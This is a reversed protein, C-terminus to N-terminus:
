EEEDVTYGGAARRKIFFFAGAPAAVGIIVILTWVPLFGVNSLLVNTQKTIPQTLNAIRLSAQETLPKYGPKSVGISVTTTGPLSGAAYIASASGNVNTTNEVAIFQGVASTWNVQAGAVPNGQSTATASINTRQGPLLHLVNVFYSAQMPLLFATINAQAFQFGNSTATINTTGAVLSSQLNIQAFTEGVPITVQPSVSGVTSNGIALQVQVNADTKEPLGAINQLQVVINGYSLGNGQVFNPVAYLALKAAAPKVLTLIGNASTYNSASATILTSGNIQSTTFTARAYTQGAPITVSAQVQGVSSIKSALDVITNEPARAPQGTSNDILGVTIATYSGGSILTPPAFLVKLTNASPGFSLMSLTTSSLGPSQSTIEATGPLFTSSVSIAVESQSAPILGSIDQGQYQTDVQMTANNSSRAYITIPNATISPVLSTTTANYYGLQVVLAGNYTANNPLLTGPVFYEILTNPVNWPLIGQVLSSGKVYGQASATINATGPQGGSTITVTTYSSGAPITITNSSLGAVQTNNDTLVVNVAVPALAPVSGNVGQDQLQISLFGTQGSSAPIMNPGSIILKRAVPGSTSMMASGASYSGAQATITTQGSIYTPQFTASAFSQGAPITVSSPVSGVQSNSSSLTVTLSSGLEVPNNFADVAEVIVNSTLKEDPPIVSPSLFVDLAVPMGGVTKTTVTLSGVEYGSAIASIVTQGPLTTTSFNVVQFLQGASLLVTSPVTGTEPSSSTLQVTVDSAPIYASKSTLNELQIVVSPYTGGDAPLIPPRSQLLFGIKSVAASAHHNDLTNLDASTGLFLLTLLIVVKFKKGNGSQLNSNLSSYNRNL